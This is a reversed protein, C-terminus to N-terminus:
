VARKMPEIARQYFSEHEATWQSRAILEARTRDVYVLELQRRVQRDIGSQDHLRHAEPCIAFTVTDCAKMAMGKGFNAHGCQNPGPNGTVVCPLAAVNRRHQESRYVTALKQGLPRVFGLIAAIKHGLGKSRNERKRAMPAKRVLATQRM